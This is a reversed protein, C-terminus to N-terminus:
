DRQRMLWLEAFLGAALLMAAIADAAVVRAIASNYGGVWLAVAIFSTTSFLAVALVILRLSLVAIAGFMWLALLGFLLARHQLLISVNTDLLDVGYLRTLAAAGMVGSVPLLHILGAVLLAVVSVYMM